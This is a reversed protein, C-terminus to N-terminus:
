LLLETISITFNCEKVKKLMLGKRYM